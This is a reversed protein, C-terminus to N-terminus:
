TIPLKTQIIDSRQYEYAFQSDFEQIKNKYDSIHVQEVAHGIVKNRFTQVSVPVTIEGRLFQGGRATILWSGKNEQVKAILAHFRLKQFNNYESNSLDLDHLSFENKNKSHVLQIAKVLDSVLGPSLRHWFAKLSAFCHPCREIKSSEKM